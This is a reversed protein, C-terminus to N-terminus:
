ECKLSIVVKKVKVMIVVMVMIMVVMMKSHDRRGAKITRHGEGGARLAERHEGVSHLLMFIMDDNIM